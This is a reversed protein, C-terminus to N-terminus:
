VHDTLARGTIDCLNDVIVLHNYDAAAQEVRHPQCLAQVVYHTPQLHAFMKSLASYPSIWLACISPTVCYMSQAISFLNPTISM